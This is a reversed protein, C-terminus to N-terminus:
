GGAAVNRDRDLRYYPQWIRQRESEPIGPGEDDVTVRAGSADSPPTITVRITQGNRGYKVANEILNRLVRSVAERGGNAEVGDGIVEITNAQADLLPALSESVERVIDSVCARGVNEQPPLRRTRSFELVNDVLNSLRLAERHIVDTARSREADSRFGDSKLL